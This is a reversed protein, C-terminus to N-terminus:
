RPPEFAKGDWRITVPADPSTPLDTEVVVFDEGVFAFVRAKGAGQGPPVATARTLVIAVQEPGGPSAVLSGLGIRSAVAEAPSAERAKDAGRELTLGLAYPDGAPWSVLFTRGPPPPELERSLRELAAREREPVGDRSLASRAVLLAARKALTSVEERGSRGGTRAVRDLSRLALDTRGAGAHALALRLESAGDGPVLDVLAAYAAAAEDFLQENRLRDGLLALAWPDETAREAIEGFTLRADEELGVARLASAAGALLAGDALPDVRLRRVEDALSEKEGLAGLLSILRGRLLPHHPAFALFTRVVALRARDDAAQAYRREFDVRPLVERALLRKRVSAMESATARRLAEKRLFAAAELDGDREVVDALPLPSAKVVDLILELLTRKATWTALECTSRAQRISEVPGISQLREVWVGRRLPVSLTSTPSCRKGRLAPPPPWIVSHKVSAKVNEGARPVQLSAVITTVCRALPEDGAGTVAVGSIEGEGDVEFSIQLGGPLDPRLAARADRCARLQGMAAEVAAGAAAALATELSGELSGAMADAESPLSGPPTRADDAAPIMGAEGRVALDLVRQHMVTAAYEANNSTTFATWPTLLGAKLAADTVAERGRGALAMAEGRAEAWRRRIDDDSSAARLTLPVVEGRAETGSRYTVTVDKPPEGTLKGVLTVTSGQPAAIQARPYTRIARPGLDIEVGTVTPVLASSLLTVAAEAADSSDAVELVPGSGQVLAGLSARNAGPGVLVAGLRPVGRPRRALRARVAEATRDGVSPWGDGVYVVMAEPADAPLADAGAEFARGLDTAGGLAVDDLAALTLEKRQPDVAGMAAPGVPRVVSDASLVVLRDKPGLSKILAEVLARSAAFLAPDVSASTDLVIALAIGEEAGKLRPAETRVLITPEEDETRGMAVYARAKPLTEPIEVDVVFDATPQFDSRRLEVAAGSVRAGMGAALRSARAPAADVRLFFEGIPTAEHAGALPYRYQVVHSGGKSRVPLWEVYAVEVVVTLGPQIGPVSGRAWGEGAWELQEGALGPDLQGRAAGRLALAVRGDKRKDGRTVAFGSIIASSPLAIRFDGTVNSQGANFFTTKVRTEALEGRVVAEVEHKRVTLPSGAEGAATRGWLEGVARRPHGTAGWPAALGGTWDDFGREPAVAVKGGEFTATEGTRVTAEKDARAVLEGNAVYVKTAQRREVGAAGGVLRVTAGGGLDLTTAVASGQLFVRGKELVVSEALVVLKTDGDLVFTAGTDLRLRARGDVDTEVADGPSLRRLERVAEGRTSVGAHVPSLDGITAELEATIPPPAGPSLLIAAAGMLLFAIMM